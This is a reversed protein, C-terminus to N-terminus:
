MPSWGAGGAAGQRAFPTRLLRRGWKQGEGGQASVAPRGASSPTSHAGRVTRGRRPNGRRLRPYRITVPLLVRARAHVPPPAHAPHRRRDGPKAGGDTRLGGGGGLPAPTYLLLPRSSSLPCALPAALGGGKTQTPSGRLRSGVPIPGRVREGQGWTHAFPQTSPAARLGLVVRSGPPPPGAGGRGWQTGHVTCPRAQVRCTAGERGSQSYPPTYVLPAHSCSGARQGLHVVGARGVKRTGRARRGSDDTSVVRLRVPGATSEPERNLTVSKDRTIM